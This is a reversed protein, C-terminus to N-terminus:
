CKKAGKQQGAIWNDFAKPDILVKSGVRIIAGAEQLGNGKMVDGSSSFRDEAQFILYRLARESLWSYKPLSVMKKVTVLNDNLITQNNIHTM